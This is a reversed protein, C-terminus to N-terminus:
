WTIQNSPWNKWSKWDLYDFATLGLEAAGEVVYKVTVLHREEELAPGLPFAVRRIALRDCASWGSALVDRARCPEPEPASALSDCADWGSALRVEEGRTAAM